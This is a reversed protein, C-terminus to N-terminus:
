TCSCGGAIVALAPRWGCRLLGAAVALVAVVLLPKAAPQLWRALPAFPGSTSRVGVTALLTGIGAPLMALMPVCSGAALVRGM